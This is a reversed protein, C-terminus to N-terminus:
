HSQLESTHEESRMMHLDFPKKTESAMFEVIEPYLGLRPVFHRDMIDIHYADIGLDDLIKIDGRIDLPDMCIVSASYNM